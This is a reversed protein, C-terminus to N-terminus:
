QTIYELNHRMIASITVITLFITIQILEDLMKKNSVFDVDNIQM